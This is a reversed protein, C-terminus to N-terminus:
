AFERRLIEAAQAMARLKGFARVRPLFWMGCDPGLRLKEKPIVQAAARVRSAIHAPTEVPAETDLNLVGLIVAKNGAHTLLEPQHAPQEYELSIEDVQTAALLALAQEYVPNAKKEAINKSYGYCMHVATRVTVGRLARDIAEVAFDQCQSYRFHVEPEDIQILDVGLSALAHIEQNLADAVAFAVKAPSGYHEDVLRLALSNPGILTIKSLARGAATAKLFDLDNVLMPGPWGIPGTVRPLTFKPMAAGAPADPRKKMTIADGLDSAFNKVEGREKEDIGTLKNFFGSFTQRRQEGDTVFTLGAEIQDAIALHCADDQAEALDAEGVKWWTGEPGYVREHDCLWRPKTYSGVLETPFLLPSVM